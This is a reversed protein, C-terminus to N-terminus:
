RIVPRCYLVTGQRPATRMARGVAQAIDVRSHRPGVFAVMDVAPVDIGETLVRANTLLGKPVEAFFELIERRQDSKQHGNVHNVEYDPLHYAIGRPNNNAFEEATSIRPHFTIIKKAETERVAQQVAILNAMWRVAIADREVLTIGNKRAFDNVMQKDILSIVVKYPCIIGKAAAAGFTLTHARPGYLAEAATLTHARPGYVTKDDMSYVNFDGEKNRKRIDIHRPTATQFLRKTIRVNEDSLAYSFKNPYGTTRHAEDFIALDFPPLDRAGEGIVPSSQYTSFIVKMKNTRLKLFQRVIAPDTDIRFNIDNKDIDDDEVVTPDSCVAIYEFPKNRHKSWELLTQQLLTLSPVLVLVTKPAEQETAWLAVLTKGTGSAMVVTARDHQAFTAKIDALAQVQHPYPKAKVVPIAEIERLADSSLNSSHMQDM